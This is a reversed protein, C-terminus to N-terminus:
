FESARRYTVSVRIDKLEPPSPEGTTADPGTALLTELEEGLTYKGNKDRDVWVLFQLPEGWADVVEPCGDKDLDALDSSRFSETARTGNDWTNYMIAYLLEAGEHEPTPNRSLYSKLARVYSSPRANFYLNFQDRWTSYWQFAFQPNSATVPTTSYPSPVQLLFSWRYPIESRVWEMVTRRLLHQKHALNPIIENSNTLLISGARFPLPRTEYDELKKQMITNCAAVVTQSRSQRATEQADRIVNVALSSLVVIISIVMLLEILTFALRSYRNRLKM